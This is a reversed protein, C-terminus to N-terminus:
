DSYGAILCGIGVTVLAAGILSQMSVRIWFQIPNKDREIQINEVRWWRNRFSARLRGSRIALLVDLIALMGFAIAIWGWGVEDFDIQEASDIFNNLDNM